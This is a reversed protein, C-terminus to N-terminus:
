YGATLLSPSNLSDTAGVTQSHGVTVEHIYILVYDQWEFHGGSQTRGYLQDYWSTVAYAGYM